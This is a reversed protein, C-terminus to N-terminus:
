QPAGDSSGKKLSDSPQLGIRAGNIDDIYVTNNNSQSLVALAFRLVAEEDQVNLKETIAKLALYDGNNIELTLKSDDSESQKRNIAM